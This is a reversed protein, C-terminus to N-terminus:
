CAWSVSPVRRCNARHRLETQSLYPRRIPACRFHCAAPRPPSTLIIILRNGHGCKRRRSPGAFDAIPKAVIKARRLQVMDPLVRRSQHRDHDLEDMVIDGGHQLLQADEPRCRIRTWLKVSGGRSGRQQGRADDSVLSPSCRVIGALRPGSLPGEEQNPTRSRFYPDPVVVVLLPM